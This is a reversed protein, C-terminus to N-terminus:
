AQLQILLYFGNKACKQEWCKLVAQTQMVHGEMWIQSPPLHMGFLFKLKNELLRLAVPLLVELTMAFAGSEALIVEKVM